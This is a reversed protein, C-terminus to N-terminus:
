LRMDLGGAGGTAPSPIGVEASGSANAPDTQPPTGTTQDDPSTDPDGGHETFEFAIDSYGLASFEAGLAALHRRMLDATEPREVTMTVLISAETTTLTLKVRGLEEPNLTVEVPGNVGQRVAAALQEGIQRPVQPDAIVRQIDRVTEPRGTEPGPVVPAAESVEIREAASTDVPLALAPIAGVVSPTQKEASSIPAEPKGDAASFVGDAIAQDPAAAQVKELAYETQPKMLPVPSGPAGQDEPVKRSSASNVVPTYSPAAPLPAGKGRVRMDPGSFHGQVSSNLSANIVPLRAELPAQSEETAVPGSAPVPALAARSAKDPTVRALRDSRASAPNAAIEALEVPGTGTQPRAAPAM